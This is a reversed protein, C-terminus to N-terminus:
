EIERHMELPFTVPAQGESMEGRVSFESLQGDGDLDGHAVARYRAVRGRKESQFEFTYSHPRSFAVGLDVWTPHDWTGPPDLLPQGSPVSRPTQGVSEPYALAASKGAARAAARAAIRNLGDMPEVLRSAHLDRVFVPIGVALISGAVAVCFAAEV